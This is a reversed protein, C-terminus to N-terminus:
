APDDVRVQRVAFGLREGFEEVFAPRLGADLMQEVQDRARAEEETATQLQQFLDDLRATLPLRPRSRLLSRSPSRAM